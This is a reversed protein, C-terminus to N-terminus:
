RYDALLDDINHQPMVAYYDKVNFEKAAEQGELEETERKQELEETTKKISEMTEEDLKGSPKAESGDDREFAEGEPEDEVAEENGSSNYQTQYNSFRAFLKEM